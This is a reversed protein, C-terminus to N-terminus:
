ERKLVEAPDTKLTRKIQWILTSLSIATVIIATLAFLWWSITTRHAFSEMYRNIFWYSFPTAVIFAGCLLYVYKRIMLRMIDKTSAGYVKRLAVERKRQQMDFLSLAFLGMCSILVALGAFLININSVREDEEYLKAIEDDLLSYTFNKNGNVEQYLGKLFTVAEDKQGPIFKAMLYDFHLGQETYSIAIPTPSKSLHGTQFNRIVGIIEYPQNIKDGTLSKEPVIREKHIDTINFLDRAAENLIFKHPNHVDTSDWSRGKVLEFEFMQLYLPSMRVIRINKYEDQDTRRFPVTAEVDYVPKGFEWDSFLVSKDLKRQLMVVNENVKRMSTEFDVKEMSSFDRHMMRCMIVNETNYGHDTQLMFRLQKMFFFASILLVFTIIYQMFLFIWRSIFGGKGFHIQRLSTIPASFHYKVYPYFSTIFPLILLVSVTLIAIYERDTSYLFHLKHALLREAIETFFLALFLAILTMFLNELYIQKFIQNGKAGFMKKVGFEKGRNLVIVTYIHIFNFIGILLILIGAIFLLNVASKNGQVFNSESTSLYINPPFGHRNDFYFDKLPFLQFRANKSAFQRSERLEKHNNNLMTADIGPHLLILDFPIGMMGRLDRNILLDFDLFSKSAPEGIVGVFTIEEGTSHIVKKGVPNEDGFLRKALRETIFADTPNRMKNSGSIVPYPLIKFFLSDIGLSKITVQSNGMDIHDEVFSHFSTVSEVSPNDLLEKDNPDNKDIMGWYWSKGDIEEVTMMYTRDIDKAFHNVTREQNVYQAIILVCALSIALGMVTIITQTRQKLLNRWAIKLHHLLM